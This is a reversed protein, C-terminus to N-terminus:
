AERRKDRSWISFYSFALLLEVVMPLLIGPGAFGRLLESLGLAGLGAMSTGIGFSISQRSASPPEHRSLFAIAAYGVFFMSARRSIFYASENGVVGFILFIPEPALLLFLALAISM